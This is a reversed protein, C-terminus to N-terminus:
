RKEHESVYGPQISAIVGHLTMRKNYKASHEKSYFSVPAGIYKEQIFHKQIVKAQHALMDVFPPPTLQHIM